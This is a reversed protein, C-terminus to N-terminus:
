FEGINVFLMNEPRFYKAAAKNVDDKTIKRIKDNRTQLFDLGLNEKQMYMLIDALNSISSFRLNYSSVLYNKAKEVEEETAGEAGFRQWERNLIGTLEAFNEKTSSFSGQLLPSKDALSMYSYISYTLGEKERAAVSLRSNLGSGGLIHNAVFLPYFNKDSRAVGPAAFVSINQGTRRSINKTRRNFTVDAQRVFNTSGSKQLVGFIEDLVLGLKEPSIDGAVGVILNNRTLRSRVFDLLDDRKLRMIDDRDGLPNRGYPHSGYIFRAAEVGLVSAPHEKQRLFANDARQKALELEKDAFRPNSLIDRLLAYATEQNESTTILSGTFDDLGASFGIGIARDEMEEKLATSDMSDTGELLLAAVIDSIGRKDADDSARGANKFLFSMSIIPNTNDEILYAKIGNKPSVVEIVRSDFTKEKLVSHDLIQQPNFKFRSAYIQPAIYIVLGIFALLVLYKFLGSSKRRRRYM